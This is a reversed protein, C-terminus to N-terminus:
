SSISVGHYRAMGRLYRDKDGGYSTQIVEAPERDGDTMRHYVETLVRDEDEKNLPGDKNQELQEVM